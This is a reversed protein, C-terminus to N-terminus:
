AVKMNNCLMGLRKNPLFSIKVGKICCIINLLVHSIVSYKWHIIYYENYFINKGWEMMFTWVKAIILTLKISLQSAFEASPFNNIHLFDLCIVSRLILQDLKFSECNTDCFSFIFFNYIGTRKPLWFNTKVRKEAM